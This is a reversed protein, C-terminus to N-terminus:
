SLMDKLQRKNPYAEKPSVPVFDKGDIRVLKPSSEVWFIEFEKYVLEWGNKKEKKM